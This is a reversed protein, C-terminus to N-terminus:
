ASVEESVIKALSAEIEALVDQYYAEFQDEPVYKARAIKESVPLSFLKEVKVGSNLANKCEKAFTLIM